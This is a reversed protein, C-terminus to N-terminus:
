GEVTEEEVKSEPAVPESVTASLVRYGIYGHPAFDHSESSKDYVRLRLGSEKLGAQAGSKRLQNTHTVPLDGEPLAVFFALTSPDNGAEVAEVFQAMADKIEEVYWGTNETRGGSRKLTPLVEVPLTKAVHKVEEVAEVAPAETKTTKATM